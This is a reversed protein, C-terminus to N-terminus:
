GRVGNPGPESPLHRDIRFATLDIATPLGRLLQSMVVATGTSLHLGGRFHGAAVFVNELGSIRGLYPLGDRTGPRLGAWCREFEAERLAPVLAAGFELLGQVGAVTTQKDFGTDEETSGVLVRGDDRPVVYRPGQNVIRRPGGSRCQLLVMQGRIPRVDLAAGIGALGLSEIVGASWCGSAVCFSDADVRGKDTRLAIARRGRIECGVATENASIMVGRQQCAALLARVHRPNRVQADAPSYLAARAHRPHLGPEVESLDQGRLVESSLGRACMERRLSELELDRDESVALQIGGTRRYGNDITTEQRLAEAWAAHRQSSLGALQDIPPDGERFVAAPLMGAGAWSAERGPEQRDLIRVSVGQSALEYALSLGIVGAGLIVVDHM